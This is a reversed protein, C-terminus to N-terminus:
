EFLGLAAVDGKGPRVLVPEDGTLDVVTSPEDPLTGGGVVLDVRDGLDEDIEVPDLLFEHRENQISTTLLPCGLEALVAQVIPAAPCRVGITRRKRLMIKPVEQSAQFIFVYPGPLVRRMARFVSNSIGRTYRAATAIDEVMISLRKAPGIEKVEYLRKAAEPDDLSCALGYVTDTPLVVVGSRRLAQVVRAILWPEPHEPDINLLM